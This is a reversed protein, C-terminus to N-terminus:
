AVLYPNTRREHGITTEPGHGSLVRTADPLTMLRTEISRLLTPLDGLPLDTRGISGQFLADGAFVLPAAGLAATDSAAPDSAAPDTVVFAVHGPAHGPTHRVEVRLRGLTFTEGDVLPAGLPPLPAAPPAGFLRAQDPVARALPADSPHLRWSPANDGGFAGALAACGYVHDLHAHTLLLHRVTLGNARVYETVEAHEDARHSAADVVLAEGGSSLVYTNTAFPNFTFARLTMPAPVDSM